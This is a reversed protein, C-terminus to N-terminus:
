LACGEDAGFRRSRERRRGSSAGDQEPEAGARRRPKPQRVIILIRGMADWGQVAPLRLRCVTGEGQRSDIEIWGRNEEVSRAVVALGLGSGQEKTTFFPEFLRAQVAESMGPAM